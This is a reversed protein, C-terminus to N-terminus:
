KNLILGGQRTVKLRYTEGGHQIFAEDQGDLLYESDWIRVTRGGPYTFSRASTDVSAIEPLPKKKAAPEKDPSDM